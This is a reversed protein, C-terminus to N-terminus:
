FLLDDIECDFCKISLMVVRCLDFTYYIILNRDIRTDVRSVCWIGTNGIQTGVRPDRALVYDVGFIFDDALRDDPQLAKIEENFKSSYVINLM